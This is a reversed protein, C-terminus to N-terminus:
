QGRPHPRRPRPGLHFKMRDFKELQEPTLVKAIEANAAEVEARLRPHMSRRLEQIREHRRRIIERVEERQADTLDLRRDLRNVLARTPFAEAGPGGRLIMVHSTFFGVAIGATFALAVVLVAIITNKTVSM